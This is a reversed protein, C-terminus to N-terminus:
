LSFKVSDHTDTATSDSGPNLRAWTPHSFTVVCPFKERHCGQGHRSRKMEFDIPHIIPVYETAVEVEYKEVAKQRHRDRTRDEM